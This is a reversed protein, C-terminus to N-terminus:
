FLPNDHVIDAHGRERWLWRIEEEQPHHPSIRLRPTMVSTKEMKHTLLNEGMDLAQLSVFAQKSLFELVPISVGRASLNQLSVLANANYGADVDAVGDAILTALAMLSGEFLLSGMSMNTHAINLHLVHSLASLKSLNLEPNNSLDLNKWRCHQPLVLNGLGCSSLGVTHLTGWNVLADPEVQASSFQLSELQPFRTRLSDVRDKSWSGGHIHLSQLSPNTPLGAGDPIQASRLAPHQTWDIDGHM